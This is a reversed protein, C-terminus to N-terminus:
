TLQRALSLMDLVRVLSGNFPNRLRPVPISPSSAVSRVFSISKSMFSESGQIKYGTYSCPGKVTSTQKVTTIYSTTHSAPLGFQLELYSGVDYVWDVVFSFPLLEWALLLPDEFGLSALVSRRVDTRLITQTRVVFSRNLEPQAQSPQAVTFTNTSRVKVTALDAAKTLVDYAETASYADSLLPLWGYRLSLWQSSAARDVKFTSGRSVHQMKLTEVAKSFKGRRVYRYSKLVATLPRTVGQVTEPLEGLFIAGSFDHQRYKGLVGKLSRTRAADLQAVSPPAVGTGGFCSSVTGDSRPEGVWWSRDWKIKPEILIDIQCSYPNDKRRTPDDHGSWSKSSRTGYRATGCGLYESKMLDQVRNGVTM